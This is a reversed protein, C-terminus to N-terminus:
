LRERYESLVRLNDISTQPAIGCEPGILDFGADVSARVSELVEKSSGQLLTGVPDVAGLLRCNRGVTEVYEKRYHSAEASLCTEGLSSLRKAVSMTSGCSHVTCYSDKEASAIVSPLHGGILTDFNDPPLLDTDAEEIIVVNDCLETLRSAYAQLLPTVADLWEEVKEPELVQAMAVEEFGALYNVVSMPGGMGISFFLDERKSLMEGARCIESIWPDSLFEDASMLEPVDAIDGGTRYPSGTLVPQSSGTGPDVTCGLAKAEVTVSYPIRVTAFGLIESPQLALKVMSASNFNADPWHCGCANMFEVTGTQTFIAPPPLDHKRGDMADVIEDKTNMIM